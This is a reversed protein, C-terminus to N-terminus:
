LPTERAKDGTKAQETIQRQRLIRSREHWFVSEQERTMGSIRRRITKAGQHMMEVCDFAKAKM